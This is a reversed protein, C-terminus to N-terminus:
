PPTFAIDGPRFVGLFEMYNGCSCKTPDHGFSLEMRFAWRRCLLRSKVVHRSLLFVLKDAFKHKKAYLGYYRLTNFYKEHIHIILRGIFEFAPITEDQRQEDEHRNYWFSVMEGDYNTIRSQAMAPRGIYRTIYNAVAKPSNFNSKPAHVYFGDKNNSYMANKLPKFRDKGFVEELQYLLTTQWKKRLMVYPFFNFAKWPTLNGCAGESVIMHIHPNWKLDRGFTHLSCVIGPTFSEKHNLSYMWDTIVQAAVKFLLDLLTRDKRFLERLEQPITFVIHRHRCNILKASISDARDAQYATGCTNCFRSKCRFPVFHFRECHHCYYLAYGQKLDGCNLMKQVEDLVIPRISPTSSLFSSWHDQFIQKITFQASM